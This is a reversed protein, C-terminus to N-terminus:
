EVEEPLTVTIVRNALDINPVTTMSFPVLISAKSAGMSIELLDGAGFNLVSTVKGLPAGTEDIVAMGILDAHYFEDEGPAPLRARPVYLMTGKLTEAHNRSTVGKLTAMVTGKAERSRTIEFITKGDESELAGYDAVALPIATFPKIRVDGRVGHVGTIVGLCLRDQAM